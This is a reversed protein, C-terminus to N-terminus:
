GALFETNNKTGNAVTNSNNHTNDNLERKKPVLFWSALYAIVIPVPTFVLMVMTVRLLTVDIHFMEAIGGCIGGLKKQTTSRYWYM